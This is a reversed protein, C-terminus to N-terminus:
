SYKGILEGTKSFNSLNNKVFAQRIVSTTSITQSVFLNSQRILAL